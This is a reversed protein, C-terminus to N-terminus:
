GLENLLRQLMNKTATNPRYPVYEEKSVLLHLWRSLFQKDKSLSVKSSAWDAECSEIEKSNALSLRWCDNCLIRHQDIPAKKVEHTYKQDAASFISPKKCRWCNYPKDRYEKTWRFSVSRQSEENWQSPDAPVVGSMESEQNM